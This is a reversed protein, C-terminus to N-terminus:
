QGVIRFIEGAKYDAFLIEGDRDVGFTSIEKGTSLLLEEAIVKGEQIKLGFIKGSPRDAFILMGALGPLAKGSYVPGLILDTVKDKGYSVLPPRYKQDMCDFRMRRCLDGDYISWGYNAGKVLLDIEQRDGIGTDAVYIAGSSTDLALSSPNRLGIAWVDPNWSSTTKAPNDDPSTYPKGGFPTPDIRIVSGYLDTVKQARDRPDNTEGGDGLGLLLKGDAAFLLHGGLHRPTPEMLRLLKREHEPRGVSGDPPMRVASVRTEVGGANATYRVFIRGSETYNTDFVFGLLGRNGDALVESEMEVLMDGPASKEEDLKVIHGRQLAVYTSGDHTQIDTPNVFGTAVAKMQLTPRPPLTTSTQALASVTGFFATGLFVTGVFFLLATVLSTKFTLSKM